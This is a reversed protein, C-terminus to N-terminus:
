IDLDDGSEESTDGGGFGSEAEHTYGDDDVAFASKLSYTKLEKVQYQLLQLAIGDDYDFIGCLVRIKSGGGVETGEPLRNNHSDFGIPMFKSKTVILETGEKNKKFPLKGKAGPMGKTKEALAKKFRALDVPELEIQTDYKGTAYKGETDPKHLHPYVATGLPVEITIQKAKAM